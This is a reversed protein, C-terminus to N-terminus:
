DVESGEPFLRPFYYGVAHMPMALRVPRGPGDTTLLGQQLLSQLLRRATREPKRLALVADGRSLEGRLFCSTLLSGIEKPLNHFASWREAFVIIRRQMADLDLLSSMFEVQDLCTRLFFLCFDNLTSQSLNGRGDYDNWRRADAASLASLYEDRRRALGRSATWLGDAGLGIQGFYAHTFMRTIRGNGDLFPHIWALRHHSAAAAIVQIVPSLSSPKYAAQFRELFDPLASFAPAIHRGVEVECERFQGPVVVDTGGSKTKVVRFEDPLRAYFEGHLWRLFDPSCIDLAPNRRLREEVLQQVEVHGKSEMQLAKTKRDSAFDDRLAREIDLPRTNHGEILNSYYSNMSRVLTVVSKRTIPHLAGSLQGAARVLSVALAEIEPTLESLMPEMATSRTYRPASM